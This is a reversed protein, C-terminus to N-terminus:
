DLLEALERDVWESIHQGRLDFYSSHTKHIAEISDSGLMVVEVNSDDRYTRELEEYRALARAYDSGCDEVDARRGAIDYVVIFHQIDAM